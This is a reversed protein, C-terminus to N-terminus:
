HPTQMLRASLRVIVCQQPGAELTSRDEQEILSGNEIGKVCWWLKRLLPASRLSQSKCHSAFQRLRILARVAVQTFLSVIATTRPSAEKFPGIAKRLLYISELLNLSTFSHTFEKFNTLGTPSPQWNMSPAPADIKSRPRSGTDDDHLTNRNRHGNISTASMFQHSTELTKSSGIKTSRTIRQTDLPLFHVLPLIHISVARTAANNSEQARRLLLM